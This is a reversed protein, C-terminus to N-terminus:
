SVTLRDETMISDTSLDTPVPPYEVTVLPGSLDIPGDVPLAADTGGDGDGDGDGGGDVRADPFPGSDAFVDDGDGGGSCAGLLAAMLGARLGFGAGVHM